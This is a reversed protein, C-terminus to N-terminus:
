SRDTRLILASSVFKRWRCFIDHTCHGWPIRSHLAIQAWLHSAPRVPLTGDHVGVLRPVTALRRVM